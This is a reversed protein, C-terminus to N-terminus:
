ANGQLTRYLNLLEAEAAPWNYQTEAARRANRGMRERVDRDRLQEFAMLIDEVIPARLIIGCDKARVVQSIEGVDTTVLPRGAELASYL